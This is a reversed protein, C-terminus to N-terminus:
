NNHTGKPAEPDIQPDARILLDRITLLEDEIIDVRRDIDGECLLDYRAKDNTIISVGILELVALAPTDLDSLCIGHEVLLDVNIPDEELYNEYVTAAEELRGTRRLLAGLAASAEFLTNGETEIATAERYCTEAGDEDGVVAVVIQAFIVLILITSLAGCLRVLGTVIRDPFLPANAAGGQIHDQM